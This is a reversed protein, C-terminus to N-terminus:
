ALQANFRNINYLLPVVVCARKGNEEMWCKSTAKQSCHSLELALFGM